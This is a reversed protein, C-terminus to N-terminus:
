PRTQALNASPAAIPCAFVSIYWRSRATSRVLRYAGSKSTDIAALIQEAAAHEGAADDWIVVDGRGPDEPPKQFAVPVSRLRIRGLAIGPALETASTARAALLEAAAQAKTFNTAEVPGQCWFVDVDWGRASGSALTRTQYSISGPPPGAAAIAEQAQQLQTPQESRQRVRDAEDAVFAATRSANAVDEGSARKDQLADILSSRMALLRQATEEKLGDRVAYEEFTPVVHNALNLIAYRKASALGPDRAVNPDFTTLYDDYLSKWYAEEAKAAERFATHRAIRDNSWTTVATNLAVVGAVIATITGVSSGIRQLIGGGSGDGNSM